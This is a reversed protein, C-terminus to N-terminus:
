VGRLVVNTTSTSREVGESFHQSVYRAQNTHILVMPFACGMKIHHGQTEKVFLPFPSSNEISREHFRSDPIKMVLKQSKMSSVVKEYWGRLCHSVSNNELTM